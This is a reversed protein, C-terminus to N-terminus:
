TPRQKTNQKGYSRNRSETRAQVVTTVIGAKDSHLCSPKEVGTIPECELHPLDCRLGPTSPQVSAAAQEKTVTELVRCGVELMIRDM